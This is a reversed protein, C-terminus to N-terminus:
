TDVFSSPRPHSPMKAFHTQLLLLVEADLTAYRLQEDSLPRRGWNSTQEAKDLMLGLERECVMALSHGGLVDGHRERSIEMTDVVNDIEFGVALLVRKEFSANHIVKVPGTASLSRRLPELSDVALPDILYVRLPTAIQILCLTGFELTTEVDLGLVEHRGLEAAVVQLRDTTDVWEVAAKPIAFNRSGGSVEIQLPLHVGTDSDTLRLHGPERCLRVGRVKVHGLFRLTGPLDLLREALLRDEADQPLCPQFKSLMGRAMNKAARTAVLEWDLEALAQIAEHAENPSADNCRVSLNGSIWHKGTQLDLASALLRNVVGGAFTHWQVGDPHYELAATGPQLLGDYSARLAALDLAAGPTLWAREEREELLVGMMAQCLQASLAGPTGLWSPVRGHEAPKVHLVGRSWDTQAAEWARGALRFCLKGQARDHMSIFLSQIYGVDDKGHQVRMMPPATFVAYLEFFNKRGYLTEGRRGLSLLGDAEYLIDRELM